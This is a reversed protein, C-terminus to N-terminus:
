LGVQQGEEELVWSCQRPYELINNVFSSNLLFFLTDGIFLLRKHFNKRQATNLIVPSNIAQWLRPLSCTQTTM